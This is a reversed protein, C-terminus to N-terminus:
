KKQQAAREMIEAETLIEVRTGLYWTNGLPDKVGGEVNGYFRKEPATISTAGAAIAKDYAAQADPVYLYMMSPPPERDGPQGFMVASDGIFAAAHTIAGGEGPVREIVRADFARELFDLLAAVDSALIYPTVAHFGEPRYDVTM